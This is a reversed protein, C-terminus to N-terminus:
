YIGGLGFYMFEAIYSFAKGGNMAYVDPYFVKVFWSNLGIFDRELIFSPIILQYSEFISAFANKYSVVNGDNIIHNFVNLNYIAKGM